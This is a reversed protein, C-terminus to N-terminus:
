RPTQYDKMIPIFNKKKKKKKKEKKIKNIYLRRHTKNSM